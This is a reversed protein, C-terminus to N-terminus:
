RYPDLVPRQSVPKGRQERLHRAQLQHTGALRGIYGHDKGITHRRWRILIGHQGGAFQLHKGKESLAHRVFRYSATEAYRDVRGLEMYGSQDVLEIRDTTGIGDGM